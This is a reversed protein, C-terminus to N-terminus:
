CNILLMQYCIIKNMLNKLSNNLNTQPIIEATFIAIPAQDPQVMSCLEKDLTRISFPTKGKSFLEKLSNNKGVIKYIAVGVHYNKGSKIWDNIIKM